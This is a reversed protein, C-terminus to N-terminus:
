EQDGEIEEIREKRKRTLSFLYERAQEAKIKMEKKEEETLEQVGEQRQPPPNNRRFAKRYEECLENFKMPTPIFETPLSTLAYDMANKSLLNDGLHKKWVERIMKEDVGDWHRAFSAGYSASMCMFIYDFGDDQTTENFREINM